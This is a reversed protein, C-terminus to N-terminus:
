FGGIIDTGQLTKQYSIVWGTATGPNQFSITVLDDLGQASSGLAINLENNVFDLSSLGSGIEESVGLADLDSEMKPFDDHETLNGDTVGAVNCNPDKWANMYTSTCGPAPDNGRWSGGSFMEVNDYYETSITDVFAEYQRKYHDAIINMTKDHLSKAYNWSKNMPEMTTFVHVINDAYADNEPSTYRKIGDYSTPFSSVDERDDYDAFSRDPGASVLMFAVLPASVSGVHGTADDKSAFIPTVQTIARYYYPTGWPDKQIEEPRWSVYPAILNDMRKDSEIASMDLREGSASATNLGVGTFDVNQSLYGENIAEEVDQFYAEVMDVREAKLKMSSTSVMAILVALATYFVGFMGLIFIAQM